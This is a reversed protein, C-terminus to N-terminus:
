QVGKNPQRVVGESSINEFSFLNEVAKGWICSSVVTGRTKGVESEKAEGTVMQNTAQMRHMSLWDHGVRQSRMSQLGSPEERDMANELCSYQFPNSHGGGPSRRSGLILDADRIDGANAPLNKVM